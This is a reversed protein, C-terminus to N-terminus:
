KKEVKRQRKFGYVNKMFEITEDNKIKENELRDVDTDIEDIDRKLSRIKSERHKKKQNLSSKEKSILSNRELLQKYQLDARVRIVSEALSCDQNRPIQFSSWFLDYAMVIEHVKKCSGRMSLVDKAPLKGIILLLVDKCLLDFPLVVHSVDKCLLDFPLVVHSM